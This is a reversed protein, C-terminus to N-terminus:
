RIINCLTLTTHYLKFTQYQDCKTLRGYFSFHFKFIILNVIIM